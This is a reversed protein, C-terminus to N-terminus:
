VVNPHAGQFRVFSPVALLALGFWIQLIGTMWVGADSKFFQRAILVSIM